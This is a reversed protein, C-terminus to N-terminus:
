RTLLTNIFRIAKPSSWDTDGVMKYIMGGDRNFIITTPMGELPLHLAVENFTDIFVPIPKLDHRQWFARIDGSTKGVDMSVPLMRVDDRNMDAQLRILSPLEKVCPACWTAWLNMVVVQGRYDALSKLEGELNKFRIEDEIMLPPQYRKFTQFEEAFAKSDIKLGAVPAEKRNEGPVFVTFGAGIALIVGLIIFFRKAM